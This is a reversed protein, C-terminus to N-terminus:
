GREILVHLDDTLPRLYVDIDICPFGFVLLSLM